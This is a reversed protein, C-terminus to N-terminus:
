TTVTKENDTLMYTPAGGMMRLTRDLASVLSPFTRGPLPVLGALCLVAHDSSWRGDARQRLRVPAVHGVRHGLAQLDPAHVPRVRAEPPGGGTEHHARIRCMAMLKRHVV